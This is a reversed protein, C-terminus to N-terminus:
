KAAAKKRTKAAKQAAASNKAATQKRTKAAKKATDSSKRSQAAKKAATSRKRAERKRTDSAKKAAAKRKAPGGKARDEVEDVVKRLEGIADRVQKPARKSGSDVAGSIQKAVKKRVGSDRLRNFLDNDTAAAM